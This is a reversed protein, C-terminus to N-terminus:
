LFIIRSSKSFSFISPTSWRNPLLQTNSASQQSWKGIEFSETAQLSQRFLPRRCHSRHQTHLRRSVENLVKSRKELFQADPNKQTCTNTKLRNQTSIKQLEQVQNNLQTNQGLLENHSLKYNPKNINDM